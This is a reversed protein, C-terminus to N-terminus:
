DSQVARILSSPKPGCIILILGWNMKRTKANLKTMAEKSPVFHIVYFSIERLCEYFNCFLASLLLSNQSKIIAV